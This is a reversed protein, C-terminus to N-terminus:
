RVLSASAHVVRRQTPLFASPDVVPAPPAISDNGQKAEAPAGGNCGCTPAACTPAAACGKTCGNSCGSTCKPKCCSNCSFL